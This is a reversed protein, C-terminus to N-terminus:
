DCEDYAPIDSLFHYTRKEHDIRCCYHTLGNTVVIYKAKLSYNYMSTQIFSDQSIKLKYSKCEVLLFPKGERSYAVVDTRKRLQNYRTGSEIKLLSKPYNHHHILFHIFHQRVWEEPTLLIYKKRIIDFIYEQGNQNQRKVDIEPLNLRIM